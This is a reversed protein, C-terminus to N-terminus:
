KNLLGICKDIERVLEEIKKKIEANGESHKVSKAIKLFNYKEKLNEIETKQDGIERLLETQKKKLLGNESNLDNNLIILRKVKAHIGDVLENIEPM